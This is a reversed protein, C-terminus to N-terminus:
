RLKLRAVMSQAQSTLIAFFPQSKAHKVYCRRYAMYGDDVMDGSKRDSSYLMGAVKDWIRKCKPIEYNGEIVPSDLMFVRGKIGVVVKINSPQWPGLEQGGTYFEAYAFDQWGQKKVPILGEYDVSFENLDADSMDSLAVYIEYLPRTDSSNKKGIVGQRELYNDILGKTTVQLTEKTHKNYFLLGDLQDCPNDTDYESGFALEGEGSFGDIRFPGIIDRIPQKLSDLSGVEKSKCLKDRMRFYKNEAASYKKKSVAQGKAAVSAGGAAVAAFPAMVLVSLLGYLVTRVVKSSIM